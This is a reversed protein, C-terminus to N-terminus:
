LSFIDYYTLLGSFMEENLFFICNQLLLICSLNRKHLPLLLTVPLFFLFICTLFISKMWDKTDFIFKRLALNRTLQYPTVWYWNKYLINKNLLETYASFLRVYYLIICVMNKGATKSNLIDNYEMIMFVSFIAVLPLQFFPLNLM